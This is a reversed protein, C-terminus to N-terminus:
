LPIERYDNLDILRIGETARAAAHIRATEEDAHEAPGLTALLYSQVAEVEAADLMRPVPERTASAVLTLILGHVRPMGVTIPPQYYPLVLAAGGGRAYFAIRRRPDGFAEHVPHLDPQEIEALVLEVGPEGIWRSSGAALLASGIGLARQDASVALWAILVTSGVREGVIVGCATDDDRAVLADLDGDRVQELFARRPTLESAPFSPELIEDYVRELLRSDSTPEILVSM